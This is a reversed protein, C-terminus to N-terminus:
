NKFAKQNNIDVVINQNIVSLLLIKRAILHKLEGKQENFHHFIDVKNRYNKFM